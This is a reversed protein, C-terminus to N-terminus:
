ENRSEEYDKRERKTVPRASIIRILGPSQEIFCVLLLRDSNFHGIIIECPKDTSHWEDDFICALPDFFVTQAVEFSVKSASTLLPKGKM